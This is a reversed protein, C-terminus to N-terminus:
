AIRRFGPQSDPSDQSDRSNASLGDRKNMAKLAEVIKNGQETTRPPWPVHMRSALKALGEPSMNRLRALEDIFNLHNDTEISKIGAQQKRYNETRRSQGYKSFATGGLRVIMANAEDFTLESLRPLKSLRPLLEAALAELYEKVPIGEADAPQRALGFLRQIQFHKKPQPKPM